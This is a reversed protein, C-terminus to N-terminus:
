RGGGTGGSQRPGRSSRMRASAAIGPEPMRRHGDVDEARRLAEVRQQQPRPAHFAQRGDQMDAAVVGAHGPQGLRQAEEHGLRLQQAQRGPVAQGIVADRGVRLKHGLPDRGEGVERDLLCPRADNQGRHIGQHLAHRRTRGKRARRQVQLAAPPGGDFRDGAEQLAIAVAAGAGHHLWAFVRHTAADQVQEGGALGLRQAEVEEAVLDFADAAQVRGGLAAAGGHVPQHQARHALDEEVSGGDLAEAGAIALQEGIRRRIVREIDADAGPPPMRAHLVPGPQEVLAHFRQQVVQGAAETLRSVLRLFGQGGPQLHDGVM